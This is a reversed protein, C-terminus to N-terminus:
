KGYLEVFRQALDPYADEGTEEDQEFSKHIDYDVHLSVFNRLTAEVREVDLSQPEEKVTVLRVSEEGRLLEKQYLHPAMCMQEYIKLMNEGFLDLLLELDEEVVTRINEISLEMGELEELPVNVSYLTDPEWRLFFSYNIRHPM